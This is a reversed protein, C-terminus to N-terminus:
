RGGAVPENHCQCDCASAEYPDGHHDILCAACYHPGLEADHPDDLPPEPVDNSTRYYDHNRTGTFQPRQRSYAILQKIENSM